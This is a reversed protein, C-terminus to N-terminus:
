SVAHEAQRAALAAINTADTIGLLRLRVRAQRNTSLDTAGVQLMGDADLEFHIRVQSKGRPKPELDTLEVEGLHTNQAFMESEGQCVRVVVKTQNDQTTIFVRSEETPVPSNRSILKDCYGGVTEVSLSLPTVDVLLPPSVSPPPRVSEKSPLPTFGTNPSSPLPTFGAGSPLPTFGPESPLPTFVSENRNTPPVSVGGSRHLEPVATDHTPDPALDIDLLPGASWDDDASRVESRRLARPARREPPPVKRPPPKGPPQPKGHPQPTGFLEPIPPVSPPEGGPISSIRKREQAQASNPFM